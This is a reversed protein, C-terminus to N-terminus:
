ATASPQVETGALWRPPSPLAVDGYGICRAETVDLQFLIYQEEPSYSAAKVALTRLQQDEVLTATGVVYFEGGTGHTDQVANHLAYTRRERLDRGKPSKPEMFVFLQGAGIVPTVPHVRPSGDARVTALYAPPHLLREAGFSALAPHAAEFEGWSSM